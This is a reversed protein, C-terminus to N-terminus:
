GCEEMETEGDKECLGHTTSMYFEKALVPKYFSPFRAGQGGVESSPTM